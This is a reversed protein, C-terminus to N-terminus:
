REKLVIPSQDNVTLSAPVGTKPRKRHAFARESRGKPGEPPLGARGAEPPRRYSPRPGPQLARVNVRSEGEFRPAGDHGLECLFGDGDYDYAHRYYRGDDHHVAVHAGFAAGVAGIRLGGAFDDAGFASGGAFDDAGFASGGAFGDAGFSLGGAFGDAGFAPGIAFCPLRLYLRKAFVGSGVPFGDAPKGADDFLHAGGAPLAGETGGLCSAIPIRPVM